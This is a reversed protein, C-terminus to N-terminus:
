SLTRRNKVRYAEKFLDETVPISTGTSIDLINEISVHLDIFGENFKKSGAIGFETERYAYGLYQLLVKLKGLAEKTIVLDIDKTFRYGKIYARIAYGGIIVLRIGWKKAEETIKKLDQLSKYELEIDNM